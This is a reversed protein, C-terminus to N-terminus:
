RSRSRVNAETQVMAVFVWSVQGLLCLYPLTIPLVPGLAPLWALDDVDARPFPHLLAPPPFGPPLVSVRM